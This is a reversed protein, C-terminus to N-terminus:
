YSATGKIWRDHDEPSELWVALTEIAKHKSLEHNADKINVIETVFRYKLIRRIHFHFCGVLVSHKDLVEAEQYTSNVM